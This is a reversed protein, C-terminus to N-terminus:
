VVTRTCVWCAKLTARVGAGCGRLLTKQDEAPSCSEVTSETVAARNGFRFSRTPELLQTRRGEWWAALLLGQSGTPPQQRREGLTTEQGGGRLSLMKKRLRPAGAAFPNGLAANGGANTRDFLHQLFWLLSYHTGPAKGQRLTARHGCM